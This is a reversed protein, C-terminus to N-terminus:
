FTMGINMPFKLHERKSKSSKDLKNKQHPNSFLGDILSYNKVQNNAM